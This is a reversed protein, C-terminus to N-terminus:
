AFQSISDILLKSCLQNRAQTFNYGKKKSIYKKKYKELNNLFNTFFVWFIRLKKKTQGRRKNPFEMKKTNWTTRTTSFM